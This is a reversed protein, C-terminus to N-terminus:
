IQLRPQTVPLCLLRVSLSLQLRTRKAKASFRAHTRMLFSASEIECNLAPRINDDSSANILIEVRLTSNQCELFLFNSSTHEGALMVHAVM